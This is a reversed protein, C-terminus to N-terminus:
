NRDSGSLPPEGGSEQRLDRFEFVAALLFGLGLGAPVIGLWFTDRDQGGTWLGLTIAIGLFLLILGSRRTRAPSSHRGSRGSFYEEPLPPLEIGKEIAAMREAHYLQVFDRKKRFDLYLGFMACTIGLVIAIVPISDHWFEHM